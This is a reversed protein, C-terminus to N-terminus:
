HDSRVSRDRILDGWRREWRAGFMYSWIGGCVILGLAVVVALSTGDTVIAPALPVLTVPIVWIALKVQSARRQRRQLEDITLHGEEVVRRRLETWTRARIRPRNSTM